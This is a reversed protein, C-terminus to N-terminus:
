AHVDSSTHPLEECQTRLQRDRPTGRNWESAAVAAPVERPYGHLFGKDQPSYITAQKHTCHGRRDCRSAQLRAQLKAQLKGQPEARLRARLALNTSDQRHGREIPQHNQQHHDMQSLKLLDVRPLYSCIHLIPDDSLTEFPNM